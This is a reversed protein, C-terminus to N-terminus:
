RGAVAAKLTSRLHCSVAALSRQLRPSLTAYFVLMRCLDRRLSREYESARAFRSAGLEAKHLATGLPQAQALLHQRYIQLLAREFKEFTHGLLAKAKEEDTQSPEIKSALNLRKGMEYIPEAHQEIDCASSVPEASHNAQRLERRFRSRVIVSTLGENASRRQSRKTFNVEARAAKIPVYTTDRCLQWCPLRCAQPRPTDSSRAGGSVTKHTRRGPSQPVDEM